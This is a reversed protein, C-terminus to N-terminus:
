RYFTLINTIILTIINATCLYFAIPIKDTRHYKVKKHMIMYFINEMSLALLTIIVSYITCIESTFIQMIVLLILIDINYNLKLTKRLYICNILSLIAIIAFCIVYRYINVKELTYLYIIYLTQIIVLYITLERQITTREKDIGAIIFLGAIYLIGTIFYVVRSITFNEIRFNVSIAFLVFVIGSFLELLFYRPRIKQKCYRCKGKLIIYSFLPILDAFSLKHNCNPCFSRENTINKGIPIRYVALTFFSGFTIGILFIYIYIIINM